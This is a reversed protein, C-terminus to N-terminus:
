AYGEWDDKKVIEPPNDKAKEVDRAMYGGFLGVVFAFVIWGPSM